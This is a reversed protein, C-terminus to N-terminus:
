STKKAIKIKCQGAKPLLSIGSSDFEIEKKFVAELKFNALLLVIAVKSVLLGMRFAVCNRPGAGFPMYMDDTNAYKEDIFRDPLFKDPEPYHQADRHLGM